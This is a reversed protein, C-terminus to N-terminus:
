NVFKMLIEVSMDITYTIDRLLFLLFWIKLIFCFRNNICRFTNLM